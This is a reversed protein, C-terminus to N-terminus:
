EPSVKIFLVMDIALRLVVVLGRLFFTIFFFFAFATETECAVEKLPPIAFVVVLVFVWVLALLM